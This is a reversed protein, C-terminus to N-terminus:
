SRVARLHPTLNWSVLSPGYTTFSMRAYGTNDLLGVRGRHEFDIGLIDTVYARTAGGHSVVAVSQGPHRGVIEGLAVAMRKRVGAFTEGNGGRATDSGDNLVAYEEPYASAIESRTMGEWAGFGIERLNHEQRVDLKQNHAIEHATDAARSLPSTYLADIAPLAPGLLSVQRRGQANLEGDTHGQWRGEDNSQTRGHRILLVETDEPGSGFHPVSTHGLHTDDNYQQISFDDDEVIAVAMATNGLLRLPSPRKTELIRSLLTLLSMGHSVVAVKGDGVRNVLDDMAERTRQWVESLREGGGIAVDEGNFVANVKEADRVMIEATTADEWDGFFPERWREDTEIPRGLAKATQMTRDLDSSVVLDFPVSALRVGLRKAQEHGLDTLNSNTHGQWRGAANGTTQGHRIFTIEVPL